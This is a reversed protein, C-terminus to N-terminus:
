EKKVRLRGRASSFYIGVACLITFVVFALRISKIFESHVHPTIKDKGLFHAFTLTAIAMSITMGVTRMTAVSGSAIGYYQKEVSSMIANMNPSSFLAFGLGLLILIGTILAPPTKDGLFIFSSLGCVTLVMGSSAIIGPEIRDSLRGAYPSFLAQMIPQAM